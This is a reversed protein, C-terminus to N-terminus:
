LEDEGVSDTYLDGGVITTDVSNNLINAGQVLENVFAETANAANAAAM